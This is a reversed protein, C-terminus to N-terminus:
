TALNLKMMNDLTNYYDQELNDHFYKDKALLKWDNVFSPTYHELMYNLIKDITKFKKILVPTELYSYLDVDVIDGLILTKKGLLVSWLVTSSPYAIFLDAIHLFTSLEERIIKVGYKKELFNYKIYEMSPHLSLLINHTSQYKQLSKINKEIKDMYSSKGTMNLEAYPPIAYILNLKNILSYKKYLNETLDQDNISNIIKLYSLDGVAEYNGSRNINRFEQLITENGTLTKTALGAGLVWPNSSLLGKKYLFMYFFPQYAHYSKYSLSDFKKFVYRKYFYDNKLSTYNKNGLVGSVYGDPNAYVLFPILVQVGRNRSHKMLAYEMLNLHRDSYTILLDYKKSKLIKSIYKYLIDYRLEFIKQHIYQGLTSQKISQLFKNQLVTRLLTDRHELLTYNVGRTQLELISDKNEEILVEVNYKKILTHYLISIEQIRRHISIYIIINNKM